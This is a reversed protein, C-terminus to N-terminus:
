GRGFARKVHPRFLYYLIGGAILVGIVASGVEGRFLQVGNLVLSFVQMIVALLWAWGKLTFLGYATVLQILGQILFAFGLVAMIGGYAATSADGTQKTMEVGVAPGLFAMFSGFFVAVLGGIVALV